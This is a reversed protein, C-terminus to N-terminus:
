GSFIGLATSSIKRMSDGLAHSASSCASTTALCPGKANHRMSIQGPALNAILMPIFYPSIRRPGKAVVVDRYKEIIGLGGIGVGVISGVKSSIEDTIELGADAIAEDSAAISYHIFQDM